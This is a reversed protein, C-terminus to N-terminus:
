DVEHEGLLAEIDELLSSIKHQVDLPAQQFRAFIEDAPPTSLDPDDDEPESTLARQLGIRDLVAKAADLRTKDSATTRMVQILTETAEIAYSRLLLVTGNTLHETLFRRYEQAEPERLWRSITPQSVGLQEGIRRQDYGAVSLVVTLQKLLQDAGLM